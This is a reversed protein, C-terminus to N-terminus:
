NILINKLKQIEDIVFINRKNEAFEKM